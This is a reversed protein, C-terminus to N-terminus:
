RKVSYQLILGGEETQEVSKLQLKVIEQGTLGPGDALTPATAGGFVLPAMYLYLEDVLRLRLLEANLTGGGEVMLRKVGIQHLIRLVEELDVRKEGSIYVEAGQRELREIQEPQTQETTFIVVRAPGATLFKGGSAISPGAQPDQIKSVIGVKIPNEPLAQSRRWARLDQSKVTLSPDEGLLTHGGVMIADSEARLRDVREKDAQSSIAAGLREITDLKGDITIASNIFVFPRPM